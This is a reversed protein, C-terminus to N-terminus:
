LLETSKDYYFKRYLINLSVWRNSLPKRFHRLLSFCKMDIYKYALIHIESAKMKTSFMQIFCSIFHICIATLNEAPACVNFFVHFIILFFTRKSSSVLVNVVQLGACFSKCHLCNIFSHTISFKYYICWYYCIHKTLSIGNRNLYICVYM